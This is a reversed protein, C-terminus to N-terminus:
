ARRRRRLAALAGVGLHVGDDRVESWALRFKSANYMRPHKAVQAEWLQAIRADLQEHQARDHMGPERPRHLWVSSADVPHDRVCVRLRLGPDQPAAVDADM